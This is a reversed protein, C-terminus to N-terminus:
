RLHVPLHRMSPVMISTPIFVSAVGVYGVSLYFEAAVCGGVSVVFFYM